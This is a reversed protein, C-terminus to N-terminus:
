WIYSDFISPECQFLRSTLIANTLRPLIAIHQSSQTESVERGVSFRTLLHNGSGSYVASVGFVTV